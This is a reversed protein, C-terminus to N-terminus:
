KDLVVLVTNVGTGSDKFTGEPLAEVSGVREILQRFEEYKREQRFTVGNGMIAVLRGGPALLDYAHMVHRLDQGKSFPPNMLVRDFLVGWDWSLFDAEICTCAYKGALYECREHDLEVAYVRGDLGEPLRDLLANLIAGRGASPELIRMVGDIQALDVMHCALPLPTEFFELVNKKGVEGTVIVEDILGEPSVPFVHGGVKRNWKGGLADLVKNVAEYSKRDLQGCTLRFVNGEVQGGSLVRLTERDIVVRGGGSEIGERVGRFAVSVGVM